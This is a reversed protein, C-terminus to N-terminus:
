TGWGFGVLQQLIVVFFGNTASKCIFTACAGFVTDLEQYRVAKTTRIVM